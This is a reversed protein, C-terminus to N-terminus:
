QAKKQSPSQKKVIRGKPLQPNYEGPEEAAIPLQDILIKSVDIVLDKERALKILARLYSGMTLDSRKALDKVSAHLEAPLNVTLNKTGNGIPNTPM